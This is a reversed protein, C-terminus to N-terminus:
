PRYPSLRFVVLYPLFKNVVGCSISTRSKLDDERRVADANWTSGYAASYVSRRSKYLDKNHLM